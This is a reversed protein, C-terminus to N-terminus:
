LTQSGVIQSGTIQSGVIEPWRIQLQSDGYRNKSLTQSGVIHSGIIQPGVIDLWLNQLQPWRVQEKLSWTFNCHFKCIFLCATSIYAIAFSAVPFTSPWKARRRQRLRFSSKSLAFHSGCRLHRNLPAYSSALPCSNAFRHSTDQMGRCSCILQTCDSCSDCVDWFCNIQTTKNLEVLNWPESTHRYIGM